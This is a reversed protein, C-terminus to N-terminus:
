LKHHQKALERLMAMTDAEKAEYAAVKDKMLEARELNKKLNSEEKRRRLEQERALSYRTIWWSELKLMVDVPWRGHLLIM